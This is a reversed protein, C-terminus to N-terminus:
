LLLLLLLMRWGIWDYHESQSTQNSIGYAKIQVHFITIIVIVDVIVIVIVFLLLYCFFFMGDELLM